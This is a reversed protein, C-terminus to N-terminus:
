ESNACVVLLVCFAGLLFQPIAIWSMYRISLQIICRIQAMKGAFGFRSRPLNRIVGESVSRIRQVAHIM